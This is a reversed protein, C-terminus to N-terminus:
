NNEHNKDNNLSYIFIKGSDIVHQDEMLYAVSDRIIITLGYWTGQYQIHTTNTPQPEPQQPNAVPETYGCGALLLIFIIKKM